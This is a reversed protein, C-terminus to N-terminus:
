HILETFEVTLPRELTTVKIKPVRLNALLEKMEKKLGM